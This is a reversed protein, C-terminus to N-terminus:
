ILGLPHPHFIKTSCATLKEVSEKIIQIAVDIEEDTTYRSLSFSVASHALDEEIGSAILLLALQQFNGGGISACLKRRNLLLLLAENAIGPFLFTTCHPLRIQNRYCISEPFFKLLAAELKNRLRATEICIMDLNDQSETVACALGVLAPMNLPGARLNGQDAGGFIFPSCKIGQRIFLGGTGAPGHLQSGNFTLYHIPIEQLNIPLKGLAHTADVHLLIGRQQCFEAISAIPQIVGTLGNAWSLSILCTRPSISQAIAEVTVVGSADVEITRHSCGFKELQAITMIAAAEDTAATLFQNKGTAMTIDRYVSNMVHNVAETGSSTLVFHDNEHAGLFHYIAQYSEKISHQLEQGKLHPSLPTGWFDTFFPMMKKLAKESVQSTTSNDLYIYPLM